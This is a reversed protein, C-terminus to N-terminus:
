CRLNYFSGKALLHRIEPFTSAYIKGVITFPLSAINQYSYSYECQNLSANNSNWDWNKLIIEIDCKWWSSYLTPVKKCNGNNLAISVWQKTHLSVLATGAELVSVVASASIPVVVSTLSVKM